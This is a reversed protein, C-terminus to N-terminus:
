GSAPEVRFVPYTSAIREFADLPADPDVPIHPRGGLARALYAKIVPARMEPAVEVLTVERRQGHRIAARGGAARVNRVWPSREGLMSVLYRAGRYDALVIPVASKRGTRHGITELSVFFSPGVGLGAVLAWLRGVARGLRNPRGDRYFLRNGYRHADSRLYFAYAVVVLVLIAGALRLLRGSLSTALGPGGRRRTSSRIGVM